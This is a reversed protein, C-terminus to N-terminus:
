LLTTAIDPESKLLSAFAFLVRDLEVLIAEMDDHFHDRPMAPYRQICSYDTTSNATETCCDSKSSSPMLDGNVLSRIKNAFYASRDRASCIASTPKTFPSNIHSFAVRDNQLLQDVPVPLIPQASPRSLDVVHEVSLVHVGHEEFACSLFM